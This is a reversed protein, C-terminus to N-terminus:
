FPPYSSCRSKLDHTRDSLQQEGLMALEDCLPLVPIERAVRIPDYQSATDSRPSYSIHIVCLICHHCLGINQLNILDIRYVRMQYTPLSLLPCGFDAGGTRYRMSTPAVKDRTTPSKRAVPLADREKKASCNDVV